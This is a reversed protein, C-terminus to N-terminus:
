VIPVVTMAVFLGALAVAPIGVRLLRSEVAAATCGVAITSLHLLPLFYHSPSHDVTCLLAAYLLATGLCVRTGPPWRLAALLPAGGAYACWLGLFPLIRSALLGPDTEGHWHEPFTEWWLTEKWGDLEGSLAGAVAFALVVSTLLALMKAVRRPAGALLGALTAVFGGPYRTLQALVSMWAYGRDRRRLAAVMGIVALTYLTDPLMASGPELMLRGHQVTAAAPLLWALLPAGPAWARLCTVGALAILFLELLFVLHVTPLDGGTVALPAALVYSPLPPQVDTVRRDGLLEKAWTLQEVRNLLQYYHVFRLEGAAHLAWVADASGLLYVLSQGPASLSLDLREGPELRRKLALGVTGRDLYRPVPGEDRDVEVNAAVVVEQNGVRLTAGVPGRLALVLPGDSPGLLFPHPIRPNLRWAQADADGITRRETWGGAAHPPETVAGNAWASEAPEFWWSRELPSLIADRWDTAVWLVALLAALAGLRPGRRLRTARLRTAGLLLPNPASRAGPRLLVTAATLTATAALVGAGGLGMAAGIRVAPVTLLASLWFALLLRDLPDRTARCAPGWGPLVLFVPLVSLAVWPERAGAAMLGASLCALLFAIWPM